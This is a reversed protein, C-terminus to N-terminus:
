GAPKLMGGVISGVQVVPYDAITTLTNEHYSPTFGIKPFVVFNPDSTDGFDELAKSIASADISNAQKAAAAIAMLGDWARGLTVMPLGSITSTMYPQM